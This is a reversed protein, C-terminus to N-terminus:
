NLPTRNNTERTNAIGCEVYAERQINEIHRMNPMPNQKYIRAVNNATCTCFESFKTPARQKMFDSCGSYIFGAIAVEDPCERSVFNFISDKSRGPDNRLRADLFKIAICRCDHFSSYFGNQRCTEEVDLMEQWVIEPIDEPNLTSPDLSDPALKEIGLTRPVVVARGTNPDTKTTQEIILGTDPDVRIEPVSDGASQGASNPPLTDTWAPTAPQTQSPQPMAKPQASLRETGQAQAMPTLCAMILVMMLASILIRM